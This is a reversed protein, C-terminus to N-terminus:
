QKSTGIGRPFDITYDATGETTCTTGAYIECEGGSQTLGGIVNVGTTWINRYDHLTSVGPYYMVQLTQNSAVDQIALLVSDSCTCVTSQTIQGGFYDASGGGSGGGSSSGGKSGSSGGFAGGLGGAVGGLAGGGSSGGGSSDSKVLGDSLFKHIPSVERLQALLPDAQPKVSDLSSTVNGGNSGSGSGGSSGGSGGVSGSSQDTSTSNRVAALTNGSVGNGTILESNDRTYITQYLDDAYNNITTSASPDVFSQENINVTPDTSNPFTLIHTVQNSAGNENSLKMTLNISQGKYKKLADMYYPLNGPLFYTTRHDTSRVLVNGLNTVLTDNFGLKDGYLNIVDNINTSTAPWVNTLLPEFTSYIPTSSSLATQQIQNVVNLYLNGTSDTGGPTIVGVEYSGTALTTPIRVVIKTGSETSSFTGINQSGLYVKNNTADFNTGMLTVLQGSLARFTSFSAVVPPIKLPNSGSSQSSSTQSSTQTQTSSTDSTSSNLVANLNTTNVTTNNASPTGISGNNQLVKILANLKARTAPGVIGTPNVLNSPKLIEARYIEQFRMVANETKKGFYNTLNSNSGPGTSAVESTINQNLMYQLYVVDPSKTIGIKLNNQFTFTSPIINQTTSVAEIYSPYPLYLSTIIISAIAGAHLTKKAFSSSTNSSTFM